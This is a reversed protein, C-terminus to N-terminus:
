RGRLLYLWTLLCGHQAVASCRVQRVGTYKREALIMDVVFEADADFAQGLYDELKRCCVGPLQKTNPTRM